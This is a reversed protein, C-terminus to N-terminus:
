EYLIIRIRIVGETDQFEEQLSPFISYLALDVIHVCIINVKWKDSPSTIRYQKLMSLQYKSYRKLSYAIQENSRDVKDLSVSSPFHNYLHELDIVFYTNDSGKMYIYKFGIRDLGHIFDIIQCIRTIPLINYTKTNHLFV